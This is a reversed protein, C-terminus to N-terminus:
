DSMVNYSLRFIFKILKLAWFLHLLLILNMINIVIFEKLKMQFLPVLWMMKSIDDM